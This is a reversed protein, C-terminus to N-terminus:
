DDAPDARDLKGSSKESTKAMKDRGLDRLRGNRIRTGSQLGLDTSSTHSRPSIKFANTKQM